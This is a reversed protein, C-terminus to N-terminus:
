AAATMSPAASRVAVARRIAFARAAASRHAAHLAHRAAVDRPREVLRPQQRRDDEDEAPRAAVLGHPLAQVLADGERRALLALLDPADGAGLDVAHALLFPAHEADAFPEGAELA